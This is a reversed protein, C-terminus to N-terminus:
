FSRSINKLLVEGWSYNGGRFGGNPMVECLASAAKAAREKTPEEETSAGRGWRSWPMGPMRRKWVSWRAKPLQSLVWTRDADSDSPLDVRTCRFYYSPVVPRWASPGMSTAVGRQDEFVLPQKTAAPVIWSSRYETKRHWQARKNAMQANKTTKSTELNSYYTKFFTHIHTHVYTHVYTHIFGFKTETMVRSHISSILQVKTHM